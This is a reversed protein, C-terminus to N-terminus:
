GEGVRKAEELHELHTVHCLEVDALAPRVVVRGSREYGGHAPIGCALAGREIQVLLCVAGVAEDGTGRAGALRLEDDGVDERHAHVVGGVLHGEHEDVVLATAKGAGEVVLSDAQRM